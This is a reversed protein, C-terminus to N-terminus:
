ATVLFMVIIAYLLAICGSRVFSRYHKNCFSDAAGDLYAFAILLNIWIELHM